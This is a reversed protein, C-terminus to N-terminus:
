LALSPSATLISDREHALRSEHAINDTASQYTRTAATLRGPSLTPSNPSVPHAADIAPGPSLCCM